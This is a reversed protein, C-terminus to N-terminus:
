EIKEYTAEFIDSKCPYLEGQVGRIIYDGARGTMTGELTNILCHAEDAGYHEYSCNVLVVENTSVRDMFWDPVEDVYFKFAEIKIPRKRYLAM